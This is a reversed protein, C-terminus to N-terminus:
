QEERMRVDGPPLLQQLTEVDATFREALNRAAQNKDTTGPEIILVEDAHAEVARPPGVMVKRAGQISVVGAALRLPCKVYHRKGRIVFAGTPLHEGSEPTKSVQEPRVWYARGSAFQKWASSHSLAFQCAEELTEKSIARKDGGFGHATVVCSPAGHVDAHVYRDHSEMHKKVVEENSAADRGCIILNGQSSVCWRYGEFWFREEATPELTEEISVEEEELARRTADMAKKAGEIKERIKKEQEYYANANRPVNKRVDLRVEVENGKFPLVATLHPYSFSRFESGDYEDINEEAAALLKECIQYNAYIADGKQRADAVQEKFKQIANQQQEIRRQLKGRDAKSEKEEEPTRSHQYFADLAQNFTAFRRLQGEQHISLPVPLVDAAGNGELIVPDFRRERFRDLLAELAEYLRRVADNGLGAASAHKDVDAQRCVEESWKGPVNVDLVLTRVVDSSSQNFLDRVDSLHLLFPDCREPPFAYSRKPRLERQSWSQEHLPLVIDGNEDLLLVNGESFLEAILAYGNSFRMVVVRDFAHQEISLLRQNGMYKRLTMAFTPPHRERAERHETLCLWRGSHVLLEHVSDKKIRIIIRDRDQYVKGIWGGELEQLEAVAARIDFSDMRKKVPRM